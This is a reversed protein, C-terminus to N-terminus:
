PFGIILVPEIDRGFGFTCGGMRKIQMGNVVAVRGDCKCKGSVTRFGSSQIPLHTETIGIILVSKIDRRDSHSRGLVREGQFGSM